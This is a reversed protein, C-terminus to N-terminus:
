AIKFSQNNIMLSGNLFGSINCLAKHIFNLLNNGEKEYDISHIWEVYSTLSIRATSWATPTVKFINKRTALYTIILSFTFTKCPTITLSISNLGLNSVCWLQCPGVYLQSIVVGSCITLFDIVKLLLDFLFHQKSRLVWNFTWSYIFQRYSTTLSHLLVFTKSVFRKELYILCDM